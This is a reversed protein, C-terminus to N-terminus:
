RNNEEKEKEEKQRKDMIKHMVRVDNNNLNGVLEYMKKLHKMTKKDKKDIKTRKRKIKVEGDKNPKDIKYLILKFMSEKKITTYIASNAGVATNLYAVAKEEDGRLMAICALYYYAYDELEEDQLCETFKEEAEDLENYLLAIQGLSYKAKYLLSNLQAAKTYYERASQFDNVRTFCMGLNYYLDYNEPHYNLANLYLSIAEKFMEQDYYIDGLLFTAEEWEPKRKLLEHLISISEEPKGVKNYLEAIKFSIDDEGSRISNVRFYEELALDYKEELEYLKALSKHGYYSNNEKEILKLLIKKAKEVEGIKNYYRALILYVAETLSIGAMEVVIIILPILVSIIYTIITLLLNLKVRIILAVFSIAIGIAQIILSYLYNTDNKKIMKFFLFLFLGLSITFFIMREIM